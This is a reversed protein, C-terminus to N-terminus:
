VKREKAKFEEVSIVNMLANRHKKFYEWEPVLKPWLKQKGNRIIGIGNNTDVTYMELDGRISRMAAFAKWVDGNWIRYQGEPPTTLQQEEKEPLCDHMVIVGDSNLAKLSNEIDRVVQYSLHLGDIFILDYKRGCLAFFEDSTMTYKARGNPDVSDKDECKIHNFNEGKKYGIELYSKYGNQEILYNIIDTRLTGKYKTKKMMHRPSGWFPINDTTGVEDGFDIKNGSIMKVNSKESKFFESKTKSGELHKMLTKKHAVLQSFNKTATHMTYEPNGVKWSLCNNNYYLTKKSAPIYSFHSSHYVIDDSCIYIIDADIKKIGELLAEYRSSSKDVIINNGFNIEQNSISVIDILDGVQLQINNRMAIALSEEINHYTYYVIGRKLKTEKMYIEWGPIPSFKEIIWRFPRVQKEGFFNENFYWNNLAYDHAKSIQRGDRPYPFGGESFRFYHAQWADRCLRQSGGQCWTKISVELGVKGWSTANEDLLGIYEEWERHIFWCSGQGTMVEPYKEKAEPRRNYSNWYGCMLDTGFYMFETGGRKKPEWNKADLRKMVPIIVTRIGCQRVAEKLAADFGKSVLAHGDLKMIYEGTSNKVGLNYGARQGISKELQIPKVRPDNRRNIPEGPVYGDLIPIIEIDGEARDLLTDITPPLYVENRAPIIISVRGPIIAKGTKYDPSNRLVTKEKYGSAKDWEWMEDHKGKYEKLKADMKKQYHILSACTDRVTKDHSSKGQHIDNIERAM